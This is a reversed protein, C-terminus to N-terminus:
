EGRRAAAADRYLAEYAAAIASPQFALARARCAEAMAAVADPNAAVWAIRAALAAPEPEVLWGTRGEDILEGLGGTRTAIVPVGHQSAEVVIMGFPEHWLSPVVLAGIRPYFDRPDVWGIMEAGAAAFRPWLAAEYAAAGSGAVLLRCTGPPLSEYAAALLDLGKAPTLRGIFGVVPGEHPARAVPPSPAVANGIVAAPVGRFYGAALHRDLVFRTVGVVASVAASPRRKPGAFLACDRCQRECNRGDRYMYSRSCVLHYDHLTHVVPIGAERAVRWVATSFGGLNHTHVADPRVRHLVRRVARAMWPNDVDLAHWLPKLVGPRNGHWPWYLNRLRVQHVPVGDLDTTADRDPHLTLVAPEHDRDRQARVLAEVAREAGGVHFPAFLSTVHLLRM